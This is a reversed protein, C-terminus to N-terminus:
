TEMFRYRRWEDDDLESYVINVCPQEGTCVCVVFTGPEDDYVVYGAETERKVLRSLIKLFHRPADNGWANSACINLKEKYLVFSVDFWGSSIRRIKFGLETM